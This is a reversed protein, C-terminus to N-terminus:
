PRIGTSTGLGTFRRSGLTWEPVGEPWISLSVNYEDDINDYEFSVSFYWRPLKRIYAIAYEGVRGSDIDWYSRMAIIHKENIKYNFGGGVLNMSIDEAQRWGFVYAMRPSREVALAVNQRDINGDIFDYNIDYLVSTSDSLRYIAEASLYNRSRSNEPRLPDVWGVSKDTERVNEGGFFGSEVNFTLLDVTRQKEGVGRKTQWTQRIGVKAGYFADITDIGYDFPTNLESRTSSSGWWGAFEPQIIHRIRNIDFLESQVDNYVRSLYGSGRVGYMGFGRWNTGADLPQGDWYTARLTAFPVLNLGPLQIPLEFEQRADARFTVDTASTNDYRRTDFFRRDDPRYRVDGIRSEHYSVIPGLTDGIRRYTLEPLHETQTLFDLIRWNALFTIAETDRARKFFIATEQEKGEYFERREYTELFGPDSYYAIELWLQWDNPLFEKNRWLVRGRNASPPTNDRIPGFNDEGGDNIYYSRFLGYRSAQEYDLDVGIGPGRKGFEDLRLTGDFGPPKDVGVVDFLSWRTKVFAGFHNNYGSTFSRLLTESETIDGKSHPWYSIPVGEINLTAHTLEYEGRVEATPQGSADRQTKDRVYVTAAGVHYSPTHFESSSVRANRASFERASVQRMEEARVYLPIGRAPVDQRFVADLILARDTEFDYFVRDAKITREGLSILVDGELYVSKIRQQLGSAAEGLTGSPASAAEGRKRSEGSPEGSPASAAGRTPASPEDGFLGEAPNEGPYIVARDCQIELVPSDPGGMQAMYVRDTAILLATGDPATGPLTGGAQYRVLRPSRKPRTRVEVPNSVDVEGPQTAAGPVTTTPPEASPQTEAKEVADRDNLARQYLASEEDSETSHADQYKVVQGFTRLNRVLLVNDETLAGGRERVQANESLYVTLEFYRRGDTASRKPDIWVVASGASLKRGDFDLTFGGTLVCVFTMGQNWQRAFRGRLEIDKESILTPLILDEDLPAAPRVVPASAPPTQGSLLVGFAVALSVGLLTAGRGSLRLRPM